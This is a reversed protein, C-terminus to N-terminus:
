ASSDDVFAVMTSRGVALIHALTQQSVLGLESLVALVGYYRGDIGPALTVAGLRTM